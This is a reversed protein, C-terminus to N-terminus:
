VSKKRTMGAKMASVNLDGKKNFEVLLRNIQRVAIISGGCMLFILVRRGEIEQTSLALLGVRVRLSKQTKARDSPCHFAGRLHRFLGYALLALWACRVGRPPFRM